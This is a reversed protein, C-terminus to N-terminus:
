TTNVKRAQRVLNRIPSAIARATVKGWSSYGGTEVGM